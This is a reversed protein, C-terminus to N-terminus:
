MQLSANETLKSVGSDSSLLDWPHEQCLCAPLWYKHFAKCFGLAGEYFKPACYSFAMVLCCAEQCSYFKWYSSIMNMARVTRFIRCPWPSSCVLLKWLPSSLSTAETGFTVTKSNDAPIHSDHDSVLFSTTKFNSRRILVASCTVNNRSAAWIIWM